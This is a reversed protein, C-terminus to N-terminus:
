SADFECIPPPELPDGQGSVVYEVVRRLSDFDAVYKTSGHRSWVRRDSDILGAERLGRTAYAKFDNLVREPSAGEASVVVHWHTSRIHSALLSWGRHACVAVIRDQVCSRERVNLAVPPQTMLSREFRVRADNRRYYPSGPRRHDDDVSGAADRHLRSGYTHATLFYAVPDDM